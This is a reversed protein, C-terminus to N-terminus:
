VNYDRKRKIFSFIFTLLMYSLFTNFYNTLPTTGISFASNMFGPTVINEVFLYYLWNKIIEQSTNQIILLPALYCLIGVFFGSCRYLNLNKIFLQLSLIFNSFIAYGFASLTIYILMSMLVNDSFMLSFQSQSYIENSFNLPFCFFHIVTLIVINILFCLVFTVLFNTLYAFYNYKKIGIRSIVINKYKIKDFDLLYSSFFNPICAMILAFLYIYFGTNQIIYFFDIGLNPTEVGLTRLQQFSYSPFNDKIIMYTVIVGGLLFVISFTRFSKMKRLKLYNFFGIM